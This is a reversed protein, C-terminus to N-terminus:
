PLSGSLGPMGPSPGSERRFAHSSALAQAPVRGNRAPPKVVVYIKDRIQQYLAMPIM